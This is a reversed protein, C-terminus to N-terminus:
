RQGQVGTLQGTVFLQKNEVTPIVGAVGGTDYRM